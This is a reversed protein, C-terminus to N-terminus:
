RLYRSILIKASAKSFNMTDKASLPIHSSSCQTGPKTNLNAWPYSLLLFSSRHDWSSCCFSFCTIILFCFNYRVILHLLDMTRYFFISTDKRKRGQSVFTPGNSKFSSWSTKSIILYSEITNSALRCEQSIWVFNEIILNRHTIRWYLGFTNKRVCHWSM